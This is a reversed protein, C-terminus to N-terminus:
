VVTMIVCDILTRQGINVLRKAVETKVRLIKGINEFEHGWSRLTFAMLARNRNEQEKTLKMEPEIFRTVGCKDCRKAEIRARFRPQVVTGTPTSM